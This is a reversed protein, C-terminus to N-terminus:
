AIALYIYTASTVNINTAAVQNVIFGSNDPDISDDTTVETVATNLSLHPDNAGVIGRASDWVYWDGVDDTRKILIFRAGTTFGCAITQSSGNGTYRGVKSIGVLTAFLYAVYNGSEGSTISSFISATTGSVLGGNGGFSNTANLYGQNYTSSLTHWTFWDQSASRKKEIVFEPKVGLNHPILLPAATSASYCVVDLFGPARKLFYKLIPVGSDNWYYSYNKFGDNLFTGLQQSGEAGTSHTQLKSSTGTLKTWINNTNADLANRWSNMIVDPAFGCTFIKNTGDGTHATVSFAQAGSTPPKNPRRIAMYIYTSNAALTSAGYVYFGTATPNGWNFSSNESASTNAELWADAGGVTYGRMTDLIEWGGANQTDKYMVYQPEWGLNVTANASSDTSFSGCQIFGTSSTDHAFLYAIYSVGSTNALGNVTFNTTSVATINARGTNGTLRLYVNAIYPDSSDSPFEASPPTFNATYRAVGKTIRFDDIYGTFKTNSNWNASGIIITPTANPINDNTASQTIDLTGNIYVKITSSSYVVAVHSWSGYNVTATGVTDGNNSNLYYKNPYSSHNTFLRFDGASPGGIDFIGPFQAVQTSNPNIWCEITFSTNSTLKNASSAAVELYSNSVGTFKWSATGFKKTTTDQTATAGVTTIGIDSVTSQADYTELKLSGSANAHYVNWSGGTSTAKSIVMGPSIGLAHTINRTNTGDGIYSVIDFFKPAKRFTWSVFTSTNSNQGSASGITFGNNNFSTIFSNVTYETTIDHTSIYKTTGRVTDQFNNWDTTTRSKSWVLGGSGALDIGNNITQSAGTGAYLYTSFVDDVYLTSSGGGGGGATSSGAAAMVLEDPKM